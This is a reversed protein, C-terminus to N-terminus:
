NNLFKRLSVYSGAYGILAGSLIIYAIDRPPIFLFSRAGIFFRSTQLNDIFMEYFGYLIIMSLIAGLFGQLIGELLFPGKIFWDTAGVLQMIEIEDKRAYLSLKIANSIILIIGICIMGGIALVIFKLFFLITEIRELWGEGFELSEIGKFKKVDEAISKIEKYNRYENKLKLEFSAPLPNVDLNDLITQNRDLRKRFKKLAQDKSVYLYKDIKQMSSLYSKLKKLDKKAINDQLYIVVQFNERWKNVMGQINFHVVLFIGFISMSVATTGITILYAEKNAKIGDLAEKFARGILQIM